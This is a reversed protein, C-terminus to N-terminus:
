RSWRFGYPRKLFSDKARVHGGGEGRPRTSADRAQAPPNRTERENLSPDYIILSFL